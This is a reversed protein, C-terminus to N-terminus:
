KAALVDYIIQGMVKTAAVLDDIGVNEDANMAELGNGPSFMVVPIKGLVNIWSADTGADKGAVKPQRGMVTEFARCATRVIPADKDLVYGPWWVLRKMSADFGAIRGKLEHLIAQIEAEAEEPTELPLVRRDLGLVCKNPVMNPVTGGDIRGISLTARGLLPHSRAELKRALQRLGAIVEVMDEIANHGLWPRAGHTAVGRTTIELNLRGKTAIEVQMTTPEAVVAMDAKIHGNRCLFQMGKAGGVEEDCSFVLALQGCIPLDIERVAKTAMLITTLGSKTDITGRGYVRGNAIEAAFPPHSWNELPGPPVIDLHDNLLLSPGPLGSDWRAIVNPRNPEAEVIQVALGLQRCFDAVFKGVKAEDGTISPTQVLKQLTGVIEGRLADIKHLLSANTPIQRTM